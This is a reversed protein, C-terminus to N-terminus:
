GGSRCAGRRLHGRDRDGQAGGLVSPLGQVGACLRATDVLGNGRAVLEAVVDDVDDPGAEWAPVALLTLFRELVGAANEIFVPSFGRASWSAVFGDVCAAEFADASLQSAAPLAAGQVVRLDGRGM